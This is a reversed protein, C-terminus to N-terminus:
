KILPSLKNIVGLELLYYLVFELSIALGTLLLSKKLDSLVFSPLTRKQETETSSLTPSIKKAQNEKAVKSIMSEAEKAAVKRRLQAIIKQAKTKKPM